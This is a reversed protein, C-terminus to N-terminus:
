EVWLNDHLKFFDDQESASLENVHVLGDFYAERPAGPAFLILMSAPAGSDNRFGHIGGPPVYEFDGATTAMWENGNYISVTGSLVFFSESITRHFHLKAGSLAPGLEWKYLGFLRDTSAGTALYHVRNGNAYTLDPSQTAPRFRGSSEGREGLYRKEPYTVVLSRERKSGFELRPTGPLIAEHREWKGVFGGCDKIGDMAHARLVELVEVLAIYAVLACDSRALEKM